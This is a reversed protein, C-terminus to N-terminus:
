PIFIEKPLKHLAVQCIIKMLQSNICGLSLCHPNNQTAKKFRSVVCPRMLIIWNQIKRTNELLKVMFAKLLYKCFNKMNM